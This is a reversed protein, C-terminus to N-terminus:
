QAMLSGSFEAAVGLSAAFLVSKWHRGIAKRMSEMASIDNTRNEVYSRDTPKLAATQTITFASGGLAQMVMGPRAAPFFENVLGGVAPASALAGIGAGVAFTFVGGVQEMTFGKYALNYTTHIDANLPSQISAYRGGSIAGVKKPFVRKATDLLAQSVDGKSVNGATEKQLQKVIDRVTTNIEDDNMNAIKGISESCADVFANSLVKAAARDVSPLKHAIYKELHEGFIERFVADSIEEPKKLLQQLNKKNRISAASYHSTLRSDRVISDYLISLDADSFLDFSHLTYTNNPKTVSPVEDPTVEGTSNLAM